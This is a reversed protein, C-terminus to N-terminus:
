ILQLVESLTDQMTGLCLQLHAQALVPEVDSWCHGSLMELRDASGRLDRVLHKRGSAAPLLGFQTQSKGIKVHHPPAQPMSAVTQVIDTHAAVQSRLM